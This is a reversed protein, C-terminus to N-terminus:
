NFHRLYQLLISQRSRPYAMKFLLRNSFARLPPHLLPCVAKPIASHQFWGSEYIRFKFCESSFCQKRAFQSSHYLTGSLPILSIVPLKDLGASRVCSAQLKTVSLWKVRYFGLGVKYHYSRRVYEEESCLHLNRGQAPVAELNTTMALCSIHGHDNTYTLFM